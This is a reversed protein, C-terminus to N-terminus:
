QSTKFQFPGFNTKVVSVCARSGLITLTLHNQIMFKTIEATASYTYFAELKILLFFSPFNGDNGAYRSCTFIFQM